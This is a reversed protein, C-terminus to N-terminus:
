LTFMSKLDWGPIDAINIEKWGVPPHVFEEIRTKPMSLTHKHRIDVNPFESEWTEFKEDSFGGRKMPKTGPEYGWRRAWRPERSSDFNLNELKARRIREKFHALAMERNCCMQSLSAIYEWGIAIDTPFRWRWNNVNYYYVDSKEPRFTWHSPHYLVDHETFFVNETKLHELAIIIQDVMTPYSRNRNELVYNEGFDIPKNLSCSVIPLGSAAITKRSNDIIEGVIRNDTYYIIGISKDMNGLYISGNTSSFGHVGGTM